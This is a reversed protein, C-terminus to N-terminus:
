EARGKGHPGIRRSVDGHYGLYLSWAVWQVWTDSVAQMRVIHGEVVFVEQILVGGVKEWQRDRPCLSVINGAVAVRQGNALDEVPPNRSLFGVAGVYRNSAEDGLSLRGIAPPWYDQIIVASAPNKTVEVRLVIDAGM